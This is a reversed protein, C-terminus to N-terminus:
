STGAGRGGAVGFPFRSRRDTLLYTSRSAGPRERRCGRLATSHDDTVSLAIAGGQWEHLQSYRYGIVAREGPLLNGINVSFLGPEVQTLLVAADGTEMATEYTQEAEGKAKVLGTLKRDNLEISLELLVAKLPVPFTYVVEIPVQESNRYCQRMVTESCMGRLVASIEVQELAIKEGGRAELQAAMM